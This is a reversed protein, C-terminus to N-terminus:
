HNTFYITMGGFVSVDLDQAISKDIIVELVALGHSENYTNIDTVFM